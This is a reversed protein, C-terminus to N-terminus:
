ANPTVVPTAVPVAKAVAAKKIFTKSAISWLVTLGTAVGASITVWQSNTAIGTAIVAGGVTTLAHRVVGDFEDSNLTDFLVNLIEDM